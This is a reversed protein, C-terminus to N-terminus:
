AEASGHFVSCLSMQQVFEFSSNPPESYGHEGLDLSCAVRGFRILSFGFFFFFRSSNVM